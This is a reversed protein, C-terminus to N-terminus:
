LLPRTPTGGQRTKNMKSVFTVFRIEPSFINGALCSTLHARWQFAGQSSFISLLASLVLNETSSHNAGLEPKKVRLHYGNNYFTPIVDSMNQVHRVVTFEQREAPFRIRGSL